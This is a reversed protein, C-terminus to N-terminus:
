GAQLNRGLVRGAIDGALERATTEIGAAAAAREAGIDAVAQHVTAESAHKVAEIQGEAEHTAEARRRARLDVVEAQAQNLRSQWAGLKEEIRAQLAEAEERGGTQAKERDELYELMPKFIIFHLAVLTVLFPVLQLAVM